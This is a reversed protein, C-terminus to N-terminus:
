RIELLLSTLADPATIMPAHGTALDHWSWGPQTCVRARSPALPAYAPNTCAIYTKPLGNGMPASLHLADTYTAFPHPTLRRSMWDVDATDTVNFASPPPPPMTLGHSSRNASRRREAAVDPPLHSLASEGDDLVMADLYVLHRIRRPECDAAATILVGGFSHGVLIVDELEEFILVNVIDAVATELGGEATLLHLREGLGTCTPTIVRHGGAVLRDAVRRWCWGGHFAGHVLVYTRQANAM